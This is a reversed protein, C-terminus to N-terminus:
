GKTLVKKLKTATYSYAGLEYDSYPACSYERVNQTEWDSFLAICRVAMGQSSCQRCEARYDLRRCDLPVLFLTSATFDKPDKTKTQLDVFKTPDWDEIACPQMQFTLKSNYCHHLTCPGADFNDVKSQSNYYDMNHLQPSRAFGVARGRFASALDSPNCSRSIIDNILLPCISHCFM